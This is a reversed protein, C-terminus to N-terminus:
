VATARWTQSLCGSPSAEVEPVVGAGGHWSAVSILCAILSSDVEDAEKRMDEEGIM